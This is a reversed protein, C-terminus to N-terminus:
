YMYFNWVHVATSATSSIIKYVVGGRWGGRGGGVCEENFM